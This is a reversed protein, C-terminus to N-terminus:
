TYLNENENNYGREYDLKWKLEKAEEAYEKILAELGDTLEKITKTLYIADATTTVKGIRTIKPLTIDHLAQIREKYDM